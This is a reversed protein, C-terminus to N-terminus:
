KHVNPKSMKSSGSCFTWGTWGLNPQELKVKGPCPQLKGLLNQFLHVPLCGSAMYILAWIRSAPLTGEPNIVPVKLHHQIGFTMKQGSIDEKRKPVLCLLCTWCWIAMNDTSEALRKTAPFRPRTAAQSHFVHEFRLGNGDFMYSLTPDHYAPWLYM